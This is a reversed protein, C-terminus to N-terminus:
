IFAGFDQLSTTTAFSMPRLPSRHTHQTSGGIAIAIDALMITISLRTKIHEQLFCADHALDKSPDSLIATGNTLDATAQILGTLFRASAFGHPITGGNTVHEFIGGVLSGGGESLGTDFRKSRPQPRLSATRHL